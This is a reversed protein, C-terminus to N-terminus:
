QCYHHRKDRTDFVFHVKELAYFMNTMKARYGDTYLNVSPCQYPENLLM